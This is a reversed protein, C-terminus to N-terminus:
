SFVWISERAFTAWKRTTRATIILENTVSCWDKDKTTWNSPVRHRSQHHSLWCDAAVVVNERYLAGAMKVRGDKAARNTGKCLMTRMATGTEVSRRRWRAGGNATTMLDPRPRVMRRRQVPTSGDLPRSQCRDLRQQNASQGILHTSRLAFSM